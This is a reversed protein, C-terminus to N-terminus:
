SNFKETRNMRSIGYIRYIRDFIESAEAGGDGSWAGSFSWDGIPAQHKSTKVHEKM